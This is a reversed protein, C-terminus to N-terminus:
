QAQNSLEILQELTRKANGKKISSQAIEVGERISPSMGYIYIAAGANLLVVEKAPIDKGEIVDKVVAASDEASNVLIDELSIKGVGCDEPCVSYTRVSGDRYECVWSVDSASLEDLGDESHVVMCARAGLNKLVNALTESVRAFTRLFKPALAQM